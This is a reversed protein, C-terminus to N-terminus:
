FHFNRVFRAVNEMNDTYSRSLPVDTAINLIRPEASPPTSWNQGGASPGCRAAGDLPSKGSSFM